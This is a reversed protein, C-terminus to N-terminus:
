RLLEARLAAVDPHRGYPSSALTEAAAAAAQAQGLRLQLRGGLALAPLAGRALGPELTQLGARWAAQAQATRGRAQLGDGLALAASAAVRREAPDLGGDALRAQLVGDLWALAPGPEGLPELRASLGLVPGDLMLRWRPKPEAQALLHDRQQRAQALAERAAPLAGGALHIEALTAWVRGLMYRWDVQEPETQVLERLLGVAQGVSSAAAALEGQRLRLRGIDAHTVAALYQAERDRGADPVRALAQLKAQQSQLALAAQDSEEQALALWGLTNAEELALQPQPPQIARWTEWTRSFSDLADALRGTELQLVGLNQEAYAQEIRAETRGPQLEVLTQALELYRRFAQEAQAHQGRRWAMYGVWYASQAHNFVHVPDRPHRLLLARTAEDAQAFRHAAEALRGRQDDIEGILHLARARRGLSAADLRSPNQAAYYDLARAGVADLADLRGVPKLKGSLDGLMFEILSEAQAQQQQAERAERWAAAAGALLALAVALGAGVSVRHRRLFKASRYPWADRRASVPLHNLHRQLDDALAAANAYREAPRKRLARAVINDLDGRLARARAAADPGGARRVAESLPPPETELVARMQAVPDGGGTPHPGGLLRYLLVGLAYVDTATTVEGGQLQEPAAYHPTCGAGAQRTLEQAEGGQDWASDDLLKAVGFDLLKVEGAPTVLINSPKLDRHLILRNHAHAVAALVDLFLRLRAQLPLGRQSCHRDLPEGDVYELVLYPRAGGPGAAHMQGADLLRAIHPHALRGLIRGEREFRAGDGGFVSSNLFKIAVQGEFRGDIRQALWVTGMGGRGIERELRYAGVEAGSQASAAPALAAPTHMFGSADAQQLQQLLQALDAALAPDQQRWAQLEVAREAPALELLRDLHPSLTAWRGTDLLPNTM